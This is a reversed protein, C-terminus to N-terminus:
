GPRRAGPSTPCMVIWGLRPSREDPAGASCRRADVPGAVARELREPPEVEVLFIAVVDVRGQLVELLEGLAAGLGLQDVRQGLEGPDFPLPEVAPALRLRDVAEQVGGGIGVIVEEAGLGLEGVAAAAGVRPEPQGALDVVGADFPQDARGSWPASGARLVALGNGELDVAAFLRQPDDELFRGPVLSVDM